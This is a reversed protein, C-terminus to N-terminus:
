LLTYMKWWRHWQGGNKDNDSNDEDDMMTMMKFWINWRGCYEDDDVMKEM